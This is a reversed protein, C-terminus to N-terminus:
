LSWGSPLYLEKFQRAVVGLNEPELWFSAVVVKGQGM